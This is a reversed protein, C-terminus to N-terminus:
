RYTCEPQPECHCFCVFAIETTVGQSWVVGLSAACIFHSLLDQSGWFAIIAQQSTSPFLFGQLIYGLETLSCHHFFVM